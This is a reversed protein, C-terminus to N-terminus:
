QLGATRSMEPAPLNLRESVLHDKQWRVQHLGVPTSVFVVSRIGLCKELGMSVLFDMRNRDLGDGLVGEGGKM